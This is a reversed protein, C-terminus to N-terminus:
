IKHLLLITVSIEYSGPCLLCDMRTFTTFTHLTALDCTKANTISYTHFVLTKDKSFDGLKPHIINIYDARISLM